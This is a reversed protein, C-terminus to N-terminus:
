ALNRAGLSYQSPHSEAPGAGPSHAAKEDKKESPLELRRCSRQGGIILAINARTDPSGPTSELGDARGEEPLRVGSVPKEAGSREGVEVAAKNESLGGAAQDGWKERGM